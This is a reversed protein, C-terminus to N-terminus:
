VKFFLNLITNLQDLYYKPERFSLKKIKKSIQFYKIRNM